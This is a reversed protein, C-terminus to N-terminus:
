RRRPQPGAQAQALVLQAEELDPVDVEALADDMEQLLAAVPDGM